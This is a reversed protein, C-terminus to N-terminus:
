RFPFEGTGKEEEINEDKGVYRSFRTRFSQFQAKMSELDKQILGIEGRLTIFKNMLLEYESSTLPHVSINSSSNEIKVEKKKFGFM